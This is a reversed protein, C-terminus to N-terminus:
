NWDPPDSKMMEPGQHELLKQTRKAFFFDQRPDSFVAKPLIDRVKDM